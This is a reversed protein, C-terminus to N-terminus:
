KRLFYKAIDKLSYRGKQTNILRRSLQFIRPSNFFHKHVLIELRNAGGFCNSLRQVYEREFNRIDDKSPFYDIQDYRAKIDEDLKIGKKTLLEIYIKELIRTNGPADYERKAKEYGALGMEKAKTKNKLLYSIAAAYSKSSNAVFGTKGNDVVPKQCAMAEALTYGYTEGIKSSHALLDILYYIKILKSGGRPELFVINKGMKREVIERRKTEPAAMLIFKINPCEKLLYPMADIVLDSWKGIDPRAIRAIVPDNEGIGLEARLAKLEQASPQCQEFETLSLPNYLVKAKQFFEDASLKALKRYKLALWKSILIHHDILKRWQSRDVLGFINHEVIVPVGAERAAQLVFSEEEGTRHLHV